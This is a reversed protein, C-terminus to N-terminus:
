PANIERVRATEPAAAPAERQEPKRGMELAEARARLDRNEQILDGLLRTVEANFHAQRTFITDTYKRIWFRTARKLFVIVRGVIPRHSKVPDGNVDLRGAMRILALRDASERMSGPLDQEDLRQSLWSEDRLIGAERKAQISARIRNMIADVDIEPDRIEVAGDDIVDQHFTQVVGRRAPADPHDAVRHQDSPSTM